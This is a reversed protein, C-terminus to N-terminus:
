ATTYWHDLFESGCLLPMNWEGRGRPLWVRYFHFDVCFFKSQGHALDDLGYRSAFDCGVTVDGSEGSARGMCSQYAFDQSRYSHVGGSRAVSHDVCLPACRWVPVTLFGEEPAFADGEAGIAGDVEGEM